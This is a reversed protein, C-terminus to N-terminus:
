KICFKKQYSDFSLFECPEPMDCAVVAEGFGDKLTGQLTPSVETPLPFAPHVVELRVQVDKSMGSSTLIARWM